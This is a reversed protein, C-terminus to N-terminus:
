GNSLVRLEDVKTSIASWLRHEIESGVFDSMEQWEDDQSMEQKADDWHEAIFQRGLLSAVINRRPFTCVYKWDEDKRWCNDNAIYIKALREVEAPNFKLRNLFRKLKQEQTFTLDIM